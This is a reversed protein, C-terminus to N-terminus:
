ESGAADARGPCVAAGAHGSKDAAGAASGGAAAASRADPSAQPKPPQPASPETGIVEQVVPQAAPEQPLVLPTGCNPCFRYEEPDVIDKCRPCPLM